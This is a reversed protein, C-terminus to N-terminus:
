DRSVVPPSKIDSQLEKVTKANEGYPQGKTKKGLEVETAKMLKWLADDSSNFGMVRIRVKSGRYIEALFQPAFRGTDDPRGLSQTVIESKDDGYL